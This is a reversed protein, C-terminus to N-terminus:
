PEVADALLPHGFQLWIETVPTSSISSLIKGFVSYSNYSFFIIINNNYTYVYWRILNNGGTDFLIRLDM